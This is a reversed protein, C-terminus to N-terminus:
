HSLRNRESNLNDYITLTGDINKTYPVIEYKPFNKITKLYTKLYEELMENKKECYNHFSFIMENNKNQMFSSSLYYHVAHKKFIKHSTDVVESIIKWDNYSEEEWNLNVKLVCENSKYKGKPAPHYKSTDNNNCGFLFIATIIISFKFM